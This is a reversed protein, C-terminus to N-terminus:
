ELKWNEVKLSLILQGESVGVVKGDDVTAISPDESEWTIDIVNNLVDVKYEEGMTITIERDEISLKLGENCGSVFFMLSLIVVIMSAIKFILKKKM